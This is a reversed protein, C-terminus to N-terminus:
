IPPKDYEISPGSPEPESVLLRLRPTVVQGFAEFSNLVVGQCSDGTTTEIKMVAGAQNGDLEFLQDKKSTEGM